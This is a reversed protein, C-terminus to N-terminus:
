AHCDEINEKVGRDPTETHHRETGLNQAAKWLEGTRVGHLWAEGLLHKQHQSSRETLRFSRGM